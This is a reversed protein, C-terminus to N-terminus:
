ENTVSRYKFLIEYLKEKMLNREKPKLTQFDYNANKLKDFIGHWCKDLHAYIFDEFDIREVSREYWRDFIDVNEINDPNNVSKKMHLNREHKIYKDCNSKDQYVLCDYLGSSTAIENWFPCRCCPKNHRYILGRKIDIIRNESCVSLFVRLKTECDPNYKEIAQWCKILVEQSIDSSDYYSINKHQGSKM